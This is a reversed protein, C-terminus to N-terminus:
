GNLLGREITVERDFITQLTLSIYVADTAKVEGQVALPNLREEETLPDPSRSVTVDTVDTIWPDYILAETVARKFEELRVEESLPQRQVHEVDSGYKHNRDEDEVDAYILYVGRVTNLAKIAIQEMAAGETVTLIGGKQDKVFDGAEWDFVPTRKEYEEAM